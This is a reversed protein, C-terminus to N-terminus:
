TSTKWGVAGGVGGFVWVVVVEFWVFVEVFGM